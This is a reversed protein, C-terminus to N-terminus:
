AGSAVAVPWEAGQELYRLARKVMPHSAKLPDADTGSRECDDIFAIREGETTFCHIHDARNGNNVVGRGKRDSTM